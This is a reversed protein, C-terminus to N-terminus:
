ADDPVDPDVAGGAEVTKAMKIYEPIRAIHTAIRRAQDLTLPMKVHYPARKDDDEFPVFALPAGHADTIRFTQESQEVKWPPTFRRSERWRPKDHSMAYWRWGLALGDVAM